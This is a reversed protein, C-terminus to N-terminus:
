FVVKRRNWGLGLFYARNIKVELVVNPIRQGLAFGLKWLAAAPRGSKGKRPRKQRRGAKLLSWIPGIAQLIACNQHLELIKLILM